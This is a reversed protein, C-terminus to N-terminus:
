RQGRPWALQTTRHRQEHHEAEHGHYDPDQNGDCQANARHPGLFVALVVPIGRDGVVLERLRRVGAL